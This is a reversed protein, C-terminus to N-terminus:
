KTGGEGLIPTMFNREYSTLCRTEDVIKTARNCEDHNGAEARYKEYMEWDPFSFIAIGINTAGESGIGPFSFWGHSKAKSDQSPLFYDHHIGGLKNILEIWIRRCEAFSDLKAM